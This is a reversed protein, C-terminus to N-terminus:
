DVNIWYCNLTENITGNHLANQSYVLKVLLYNLVLESNYPGDFGLFRISEITPTGSIQAFTMFEQSFLFIITGGVVTIAVMLLTAIIPAVAKRKKTLEPGYL